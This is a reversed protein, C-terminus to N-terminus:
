LTNLDYDTGEYIREECTPIDDSVEIVLPRYFIKAPEKPPLCWIKIFLLIGVVLILGLFAQMEEGWMKM